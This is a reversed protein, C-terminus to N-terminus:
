NQEVEKRILITVSRENFIYIYIMYMYYIDVLSSSELLIM